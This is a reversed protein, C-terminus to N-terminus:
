EWGLTGSILYWHKIPTEAAKFNNLQFKTLSNQGKERIKLQNQNM